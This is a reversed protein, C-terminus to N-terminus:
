DNVFGDTDVTAGSRFIGDINFWQGTELTLSSSAGSVPLVLERPLGGPQSALWGSRDGGATEESQVLPLDLFPQRTDAYVDVAGLTLVLNPQGDLPQALGGSTALASSRGRTRIVCAGVSSGSDAFGRLTCDIAAPVGQEHPFGGSCPLGATSGSAAIV